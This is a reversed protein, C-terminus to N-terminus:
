HHASTWERKKETSKTIAGPKAPEPILPPKILGEWDSLLAQFRHAGDSLRRYLLATQRALLHVQRGELNQKGFTFDLVFHNVSPVNAGITSIDRDLRALEDAIPQLREYDRAPPTTIRELEECLAQGSLALKELRAFASLCEGMGGSFSIPEPPLFDQLGAALASLGGGIRRKRGDRETLIDKWIKRIALTILADVSLPRKLAPRLTWFGDADFDTRWVNLDRWLPFDGEAVTEQGQLMNLALRAVAEPSAQEQCRFRKCEVHFSCPFCPLTSEVVVHKHGYPGTEHSLASGFCLSLVPTGVATALHQTGTDNSVLLNVRNLLAALAALSTKGALNLACNGLGEAVQGALEKEDKSGFILIGAGTRETLEKGLRVFADAPWRKSELSAGPQFGILLPAEKGPWDQLLRAAEVHAEPPIEVSLSNSGSPNWIRHVSTHYDNSDFALGLHIDVLNFRNCTRNLNATFFYQAWPHLIQRFGEADLTLGRTEPVALLHCILASIRSHSLNIVLDYNETRLSEIFTEVEKLRRPLYRIASKSVAVASTFQFPITRDIEPILRCIEAFGKVVLYHIEARPHKRKLAKLLPTSQLIDGMRTLNVILIKRNTM